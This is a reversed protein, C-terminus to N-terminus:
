AHLQREKEHSFINMILDNPSFVETRKQCQLIALGLTINSILFLLLLGGQSQHTRLGDSMLETRLLPINLYLTHQYM